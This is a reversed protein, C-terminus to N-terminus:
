IKLRKPFCLPHPCILLPTIYFDPYPFLRCLWFLVLQPLLCFFLCTISHLPHNAGSMEFSKPGLMKLLLCDLFVAQGSSSPVVNKQFVLLWECLLLLVTDCGLLVSGGSCLLGAISPIHTIVIIIVLM